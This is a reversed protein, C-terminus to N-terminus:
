EVAKSLAEAVRRRFGAPARAVPRYGAYRWATVREGEDTRVEASRGDADVVVVTRRGAGFIWRAGSQAVYEGPAEGLRWGAIRRLGEPTQHLPLFRARLPSAEAYPASERGGRRYTRALTDGFAVVTYGSSDALALDYGPGGVALGGIMRATDGGGLPYKAVAYQVFYASDLRALAEAVAAEAAPEPPPAGPGCAQAVLALLLM